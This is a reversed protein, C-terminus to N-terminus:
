RNKLETGLLYMSDRIDNHLNIVAHKVRAIGMFVFQSVFYLPFSFRMVLTRYAYSDVCALGLIRAFFYPLVLRDILFMLIPCIIEVLIFTFDVGSFGSRIVRSFRDRWLSEGFAGVLLCRLWVKLFLLGIAWCQLPPYSPTEDLPTRFPIVVVTELLIGILLPIVSFWISGLVIIKLSILFWKWVLVALASLEASNNAEQLIYRVLFFSGLVIALGVSLTYLDNEVSVSLAGLTLRGIMIPLHFAWSFFVVSAFVGTMALAICRAFIGKDRFRSDRLDLGDAAVDVGDALPEIESEYEQMANPIAGELVAGAEDDQGEHPHSEAEQEQGLAGGVIDVAEPTRDIGLGIRTRELTDQVVEGDLLYESVGCVECMTILFRHVFFRMCERHHYKQILFPLLFHFVLLELPLQVDYYLEDFKLKLPVGTPCFVHGIKVPLMIMFLISPIYYSLNLLLKEVLARVPMNCLSDLTSDDSFFHYEPLCRSMVNEKLIRRLESMFVAVHTSFFFGVLFHVLTCIVPREQFFLLRRQITTDFVRLTVIDILWGMLHPICVMEMTLYMSLKVWKKFEDVFSHLRARIHPYLERREGGALIVGSLVVFAASLVLSYGCVAELAVSARSVILDASLPTMYVNELLAPWLVPGAGAGESPIIRNVDSNNLGASFLMSAVGAKLPGLGWSHFGLLWLLSRGLIVPFVEALIVFLANYLCLFLAHSASEWLSGGFITLDQLDVAVADVGAGGGAVPVGRDGAVPVGRDGAVPVDHELLRWFNVEGRANDAQNEAVHETDDNNDNFDPESRDDSDSGSETRGESEGDGGQVEVEVAAGQSSVGEVEGTSENEPATEGTADQMTPGATVNQQRTRPPGYIEDHLYRTLQIAGLSMLVISASIIIGNWWRSLLELSPTFYSVLHWSVQDNLILITCQDVWWATFFPVVLLWLFSLITGKCFQFIIRGIRPMVGCIFEFMSLTSPADEAYVRRFSFKEGCLECKPESQKSVRLWEMLCDQHVFKISGDCRCPHFLPRSPESEGHCVRCCEDGESCESEGSGTNWLSEPAGTEKSDVANM